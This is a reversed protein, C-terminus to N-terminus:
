QEYCRIINPSDYLGRCVMEVKETPVGMVLVITILQMVSMVALSIQLGM